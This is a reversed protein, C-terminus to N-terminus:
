LVNNISDQLFITLYHHNLFAPPAWGPRPKKLWTAAFLAYYHKEPAPEKPYGLVFDVVDYQIPSLKGVILYRKTLKKFSEQSLNFTALYALWDSKTFSDSFEPKLLRKVWYPTIERYEETKLDSSIMNFWHSTVHLVLTKM